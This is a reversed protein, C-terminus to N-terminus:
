REHLVYNGYGYYAWYPPAYPIPSYYQGCYQYGIYPAPPPKLMQLAQLTQFQSQMQHMQLSQVQNRMSDQLISAVSQASGSYDACTNQLVSYDTEPKLKPRRSIWEMTGDDNLRLGDFGWWLTILYPEENEKEELIKLTEREIDFPERPEHFLEAPFPSFKECHQKKRSKCIAVVCFAVIIAAHLSIFLGTM